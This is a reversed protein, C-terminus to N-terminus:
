PSPSLGEPRWSGLVSSGARGVRPLVRGPRDDAYRGAWGRPREGSAFTACCAPPRFGPWRWLIAAGQCLRVELGPLWHRAALLGGPQSLGVALGPCRAPQGRLRHLSTVGRRWPTVPCDLESMLPSAAHAALSSSSGPEPRAGGPWGTLPVGVGRDDATAARPRAPPEEDCPPRAATVQAARQEGRGVGPARLVPVAYGPRPGRGAQGSHVHGRHAARM